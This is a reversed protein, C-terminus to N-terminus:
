KSGDRGRKGNVNRGGALDVALALGLSGAKFGRGMVAKTRERTLDNLLVVAIQNNDYFDDIELQDGINDLFKAKNGPHSMVARAQYATLSMSDQFTMTVVWSNYDDKQHDTDVQESVRIDSLNETLITTVFSTYIKNAPAALIGIKGDEVGAKTGLYLCKVVDHLRRHYGM